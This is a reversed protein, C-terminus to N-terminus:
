QTKSPNQSSKKIKEKLEKKSIIRIDDVKDWDILRKLTKDDIPNAQSDNIFYSYDDDVRRKKRTFVISGDQSVKENDTSDSTWELREFKKDTKVYTTVDDPNSRTFGFILIGHSNQVGFEPLFNRIKENQAIVPATGPSLIYAIQGIKQTTQSPEAVVFKKSIHYIYKNNKSDTETVKIYNGMITKVNEFVLKATGELVAPKNRFLTVEHGNIFIKIGKEHAKLTIEEETSNQFDIKPTEPSISSM